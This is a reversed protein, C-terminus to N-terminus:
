FKKVSAVVLLTKNLEERIKQDLKFYIDRVCLIRFCSSFKLVM